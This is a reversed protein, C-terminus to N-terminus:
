NTEKKNGPSSLIANIVCTPCEGSKCRSEPCDHDVINFIDLAMEMFRNLDIKNYQALIAATTICAYAIYQHPIDRVIGENLILPVLGFSENRKDKNSM